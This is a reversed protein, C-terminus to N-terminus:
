AGKENSIVPQAGDAHDRAGGLGDEGGGAESGWEAVEEADFEQMFRAVWEEESHQSSGPRDGGALEDSLEYSLRWRGGAISRLAESVAARYNPDEAKKKLFQASSAFALTLDDGDVAVPRAECIVAGLLSHEARVLEVVAPWVACVSELDRAAPPVQARDLLPPADVVAPSAQTATAITGAPETAAAQTTAAASVPVTVAPDVPAAASPQVAEAGPGTSEAFSQASAGQPPQVIAEDAIAGGMGAAQPPRAYVPKNAAEGELREIRALLARMSGDLPPKAAKVLALELRTRADAGARVGEMAEGLLELLRVVTAHEVRDAQALLAADAEPTLSLEDPLEGLTQVVLLERARVELDSAFSGADRGQEACEELARLAGAADGAGIADVTQELLRADAVGLVALVDELAIEQGSYTVIQELTGLADRFSGTASRALAAVAAAPIEISEAEAARRVVSAIQEVTPRHFDFRHCRDVVTAPVKNAETTALVFVTNPPPEELTKLFANWAATSLMHAEDLIYVKRRGSVPAYAVSERLDRIDDVSNNSAADMEIVDLSTARAISVCSDCVGCPEITPGNECNLCAALIKAMSTKGTGRSGVFLYAHHVNGSQVANRLTRVVPEQGVVEAFTRPRHRRYLSRQQHQPQEEQSM